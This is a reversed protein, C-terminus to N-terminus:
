APHEIGGILIPGYGKNHENTRRVVGPGREDGEFTGRRQLSTREQGRKSEGAAEVFTAEHAVM